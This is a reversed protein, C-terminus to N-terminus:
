KCGYVTEVLSDIGSYSIYMNEATGFSFTIAGGIPVTCKWKYM